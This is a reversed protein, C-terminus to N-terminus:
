APKRGGKLEAQMAKLADMDGKAAVAAQEPWTTPDAVAFRRGAALLMERLQTAPTTALAAFTTIGQQALLEAIKPGIGEILQLPDTVVPAADTSKAKKGAAASKPATPEAAAAAKKAKAAPKPTVAKEPAPASAPLPRTIVGIADIYWDAKGFFGVVESGEAALFSYAEDGGEGGYAPSVRKNTHFCISDVYQSSRGSIGVLYEDAELVFRHVDAGNGGIGPLAQVAGSADVYIVKISDVFWGSTVEVERIRAASPVIYDMIPIGGEGGSVGINTESM